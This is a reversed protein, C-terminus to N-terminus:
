GAIARMLAEVVHPPAAGVTARSIVGDAYVYYVTPFGTVGFVDALSRARRTSPSRSPTAMLRM